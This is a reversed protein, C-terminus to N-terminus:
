GYWVCLIRVPEERHSVPESKTNEKPILVESVAYLAFDLRLIFALFTSPGCYEYFISDWYGIFTFIAGTAIAYVYILKLSKRLGESQQPRFDQNGSVDKM